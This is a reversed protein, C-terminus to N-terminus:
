QFGKHDANGIPLNADVILRLADYAAFMEQALNLNAIGRRLHGHPGGVRLQPEDRLHDNLYRLGLEFSLRPGAVAFTAIEEDSLTGAAGEIYSVIVSEFQEPALSSVAGGPLHWSASRVLDGVDHWCPGMKVLDLDLVAIAEGEDRDLLVNSFKTDNHM